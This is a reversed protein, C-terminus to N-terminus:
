RSDSIASSRLPWSAEQWLEHFLRPFQRAGFWLGAVLCAFAVSPAGLVLILRYALTRM